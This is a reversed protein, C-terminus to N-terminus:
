HCLIKFQESQTSHHIKIYLVRPEIGVQSSINMEVKQMLKEKKGTLALDWPSLKEIFDNNFIWNTKIYVHRTFISVICSKTNKIIFNM